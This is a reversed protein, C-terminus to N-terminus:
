SGNHQGGAFYGMPIRCGSRWCYRGENTQPQCTRSPCQCEAPAVSPQTAQAEMGMAKRGPVAGTGDRHSTNLNGVESGQAASEPPNM